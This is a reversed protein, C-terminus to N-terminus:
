PVPTVTLTFTTSETVDSTTDSYQRVLTTPGSGGQWGSILYRGVYPSSADQILQGLHALGWLDLFWNYTLPESFGPGVALVNEQPKGVDVMVQLTSVTTDSQLPIAAQFQGGVLGVVEIGPDDGELACHFYAYTEQTQGQYTYNTTGNQAAQVLQLAVGTALIRSDLAADPNSLEADMDLSLQPWKYYFVTLGTNGAAAAPNGFRVVALLAPWQPLINMLRVYVSGIAATPSEASQLVQPVPENIAQYTARAQGGLWTQMDSQVLTGHRPLEDTLDWEVPVNDQPGNMPLDCSSLWLGIQKPLSDVDQRFNFNVTATIQSQYPNSQPNTLQWVQNPNATVQVDYSYIVVSAGIVAQVSSLPGLPFGVLTGIYSIIFGPIQGAAWPGLTPVWPVGGMPRPAGSPRQGTILDRPHPLSAEMFSYLLLNFQIPDLLGDGWVPDPNSVPFRTERELGLALVLAPLLEGPQYPDQTVLPALQSTLYARTLPQGALDTVGKAAMEAIFSDLSVYVGQSLKNAIAQAQFDIMFPQQSSVAADFAADNTSGVTPIGFVSFLLSVDAPDFAPGRQIQDYIGRAVLQVDSAPITLSGSVVRYFRAQGIGNPDTFTVPSNSGVFSSAATWNPPALSTAYEVTYTTNSQANFVFSFQQNRLGPSQLWLNDAWVAGGGMLLWLWCAARLINEPIFPRRKMELTGLVPKTKM